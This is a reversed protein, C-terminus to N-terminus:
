EALDHYAEVLNFYGRRKSEEEVMSVILLFNPQCRGGGECIVPWPRNSMVLELLAVYQDYEIIPDECDVGAELGQDFAILIANEIADVFYGPDIPADDVIMHAKERATPQGCPINIPDGFKFTVAEAAKAEAAAEAAAAARLDAIRNATRKPTEAEVVKAYVFADDLIDSLTRAKEAM